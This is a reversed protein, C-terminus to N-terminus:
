RIAETRELIGRATSEIAERGALPAGRDRSIALGSAASAFAAAPVPAAGNLLADLLAGGFLDGAGTTDRAITDLAPVRFLDTSDATGVVAGQEGSTLVVTDPGLELLAAVTDALQYDGILVKADRENLKLVDVWELAALLEDREPAPPLGGPKWNPDLFVLETREAARMVIDASPAGALEPHSYSWYWSWFYVARSSPAADLVSAFSDYDRQWAPPCTIVMTAGASEADVVSMVVMNDGVYQEVHATGFGLRRLEDLTWQGFMDNGVSDVFEVRRALARLMEGVYAGAGLRVEQRYATLGVNPQISEGSPPYVLVDPHLYPNAILVELAPATM